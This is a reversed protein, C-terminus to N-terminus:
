VIKEAEGRGNWNNEKRRKAIKKEEERTLLPIKSIEKLYINLSGSDARVRPQAKEKEPKKKRAM